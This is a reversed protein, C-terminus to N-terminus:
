ELENLCHYPMFYLLVLGFLQHITSLLIIIQIQIKCLINHKLFEIRLSIYDDCANESFSFWVFSICFTMITVINDM